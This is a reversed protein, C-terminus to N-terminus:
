KHRHTQIHTKLQPMNRLEKRCVHCLLPRKLMTEYHERNIDLKGKEELTKIVKVADIFFETTFSNWHKKNKLCPSDLDQSVVHMHLRKMSPVAHYGFKFHISSHSKKTYSQAFQLMHQLLVVHSVRLMLLNSIDDRSLVLFHHQAKPYGDQIIICKDDSDLILDPDQMSKLLGQSWHGLSPKILPPKSSKRGKEEDSAEDSAYRKAM